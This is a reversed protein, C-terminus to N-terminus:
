GDYDWNKYRWESDPEMNKAYQEDADLHALRPNCAACVCIGGGCIFEASPPPTDFSETHEEHNGDRCGYCKGLFAM